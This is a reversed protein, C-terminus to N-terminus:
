EKRKHMKTEQQNCDQAEINLIAKHAALQEAEKKSHGKGVGLLRDKLYVASEFYKDHDPGTEKLVKYEPLQMYQSQIFEQLKSKFDITEIETSKILFSSVFDKAKEIGGDLYIAGILAEFADCLLSERSRSKKTDEGKGLSIFSGLFIEKAWKSVNYASVITSKIKSLEGEKLDPFKKYLHEVVIFGLISDGLFEMRENHEKLRFESAFSTHTLAIILIDIDNFEYSIIKQFRDLDKKYM